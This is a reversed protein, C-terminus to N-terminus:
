FDGARPKEPAPPVPVVYLVYTGPTLRVAPYLQEVEIPRGDAPVTVDAGPKPDITNGFLDTLLLVSPQTAAVKVTVPERAGFWGKLPALVASVVMVLGLVAGVM